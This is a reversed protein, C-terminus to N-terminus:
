CLSGIVTQLASLVSIAGVRLIERFLRWELRLDDIHPRLTSAAAIRDM